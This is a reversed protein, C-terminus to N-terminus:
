DYIAFTWGSRKEIKFHVLYGPKEVARNARKALLLPNDM